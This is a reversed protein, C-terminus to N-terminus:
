LVLSPQLSVQSKKVDSGHRNTVWATDGVGEQGRSGLGERSLMECCLGGRVVDWLAGGVGERELQKIRNM